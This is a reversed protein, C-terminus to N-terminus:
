SVDPILEVYCNDYTASIKEKLKIDAKRLEKFSVKEAKTKFYISIWMKRGTKTIDYFVPEYPYNDLVETTKLKIDDTVEESPPLLV